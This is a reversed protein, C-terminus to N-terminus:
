RILIETKTLGIFVPETIIPQDSPIFKLGIKIGFEKRFCSSDREDCLLLVFHLTVDGETTGPPIKVVISTRGELLLRQSDFSDLRWSRNLFPQIKQPADITLKVNDHLNLAITLNFSSGGKKFVRGNPVEVIPIEPPLGQTINHVKVAPFKLLFKTARLSQLNIKVIEHSNTNMVLVHTGDPTCCLGAPENFKFLENTEDDIIMLTQIKGLQVNIKKIKNNFTDAVFVERESPNHAVGLPHQLRAQYKEGDVDGYAFLNMPNNTAGVVASVKGDELSMKRISSSESDAIYIEQSNRLLCLGSPQAFSAQKPYDNNRNREEGNGAIAM